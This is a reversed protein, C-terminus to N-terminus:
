SAHSLRSRCLATMAAAAGAFSAFAREHKCRKSWRGGNKSRIKPGLRASKTEDRNREIPTTRWVVGRLMHKSHRIYTELALASTPVACPQM